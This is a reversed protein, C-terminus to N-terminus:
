GACITMLMREEVWALCAKTKERESRYGVGEAFGSIAHGELVLFQLDWIREPRIITEFIATKKKPTSLTTSGLLGIGPATV